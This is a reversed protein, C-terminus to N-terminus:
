AEWCGSLRCPLIRCKAVDRGQLNQAIFAFAELSAKSRNSGELITLSVELLHSQYSIQLYSSYGQPPSFDRRGSESISCNAGPLEQQTIHGQWFASLLLVVKMVLIEFYSGFDVKVSESIENCHYLVPQYLGKLNKCCLVTNFFMM